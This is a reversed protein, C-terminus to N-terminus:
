PNNTEPPDPNITAASNSLDMRAQMEVLRQELQSQRLSIALDGRTRETVGRVMDTLRRLGGTVADPYDMTVLVAYIDDMCSLLREAEGTHGKMLCDLCRRRLEGAAEALGQLYTAPDIDLEEPSPLDNNGLLAYVSSAEAYEKLADQTYGAYYLEPYEALDTQLSEAIHRADALHQLALSREDRHVARIAHACHRTLLRSQALAQDRAATRIEFHQRIREAIDEIPEM